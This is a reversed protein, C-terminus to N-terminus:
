ESLQQQYSSNDLVWDAELVRKQRLIKKSKGSGFISWLRVACYMLRRKFTSVGSARMATNFISDTTKRDITVRENNQYLSAYEVLYDHVAAAQGHDGWPSVIWRLFWPITAGDTLFGAPVVVWRLTDASGEYFKFTDVVRWHDKKLIRSAEADYQIRLNSDFRAFPLAEKLDSSTITPKILLDPEPQLLQASTLFNM